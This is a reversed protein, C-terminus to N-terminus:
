TAVAKTAFVSVLTYVLTRMLFASRTRRELFAAAVELKGRLVTVERQYSRKGLSVLRRSTLVSKTKETDGTVESQNRKTKAILRTKM